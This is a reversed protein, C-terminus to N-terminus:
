SQHDELYLLMALFNVVRSSLSKPEGKTMEQMIELSEHMKRLVEAKNMKM